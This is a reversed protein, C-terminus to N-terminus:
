IFTVKVTIDDINSKFFHRFHNWPSLSSPKSHELSVRSSSISKLNSRTKKEVQTSKYVKEPATSAVQLFVIQTFMSLKSYNNHCCFFNSINKFFLSRASLIIKHASELIRAQFTIVSHSRFTIYRFVIQRFMSLKSYNNHCCFLNSINKFFLSRASLIIKHGSELIRAQFTVSVMYLKFSCSRDLCRASELVRALFTIVSHSRFTIKLVVIQTFM